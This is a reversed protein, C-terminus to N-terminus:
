LYKEPIQTGASSLDTFHLTKDPYYEIVLHQRSIDDLESDLVISCKKSRGILNERHKLVYRDGTMSALIPEPGSSDIVFERSAIKIPLRLVKSMEVIVTQGRPIKRFVPPTAYESIQESSGAHGTKMVPARINESSNASGSDDIPTGAARTKMLRFHEKTPASAKTHSDRDEIIGKLINIRSQLYRLYAIVAELKFESFDMPQNSLEFMIQRWDYDQSFRVMTTENLYSDISSPERITAALRENIQHEVQTLQKAEKILHLDPSKLMKQMKSAPIDTKTSLFRKFDDTTQFELIQNDIRIKLSSSGLLLGLIGRQQYRNVPKDKM